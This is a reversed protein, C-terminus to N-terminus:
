PSIPDSQIAEGKSSIGAFAPIWYMLRLHNPRFGIECETYQIGAKAPIELCQTGRLQDSDLTRVCSM